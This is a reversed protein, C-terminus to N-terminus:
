LLRFCLHLICGLGKPKRQNLTVLGWLGLFFWVIVVLCAMWDVAEKKMSFFSLGLSVSM